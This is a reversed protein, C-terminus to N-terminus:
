KLFHLTNLEINEKHQIHKKEDIQDCQKSTNM